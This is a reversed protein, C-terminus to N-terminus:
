GGLNLSSEVLRFYDCVSNYTKGNADTIQCEIRTRGTPWQSTDDAWIRGVGQTADLWEFNLTGFPVGSYDSLGVKVGQWAATNLPCADLLFRGMMQFASGRVITLM